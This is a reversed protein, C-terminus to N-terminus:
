AATKADAARPHRVSSVLFLSRPVSVFAALTEPFWTTVPRRGGGIFERTAGAPM